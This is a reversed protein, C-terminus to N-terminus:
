KENEDLREVLKRLAAMEDESFVAEEALYAVFPQVSGGLMRETFDGVLAHLLEAQSVCPSYRYAGGYDRARELYGKKRLREMVTLVTTRALGRAKGFDEAAEGVSIPAHDIVYRLLALEQEGL